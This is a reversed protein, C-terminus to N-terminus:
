EITRYVLSCNAYLNGPTGTKTWAIQLAVYGSGTAAAAGISLFTGQLWQGSAGSDITITGLSSNGASNSKFVEGVWKHSASLATGGSAVHYATIVGALYIDSGGLAGPMNMRHLTASASIPVDTTFPFPMERAVTSRMGSGSNYYEAVHDSRWWRDGSASTPSSTQSDWQVTGNIRSLKAGANGIALKAATDAGSAVAIDGATDWISDTAVSGGVGTIGTHDIDGHQVM